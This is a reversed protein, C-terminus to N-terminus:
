NKKQFKDLFLAFLFWALGTLSGTSLSPSHSTKGLQKRGKVKLLKSVFHLIGSFFNILFEENDPSVVFASLAFLPLSPKLFAKKFVPFPPFVLSFTLRYSACVPQVKSTKVCMFGSSVDPWAERM